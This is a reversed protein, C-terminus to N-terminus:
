GTPVRRLRSRTGVAELDAELLDPPLPSRRAPISFPPPAIRVATPSTPPPQTRPALKVPSVADLSLWDIDFGGREIFLTLRQSGANLRVRGVSVESFIDHSGTVPISLAGTVNLGNAQLHVRSGPTTASVRLRLTYIGADVVNVSYALWENDATWGVQFAGPTGLVQRIDVSDFRAAAGSNGPTSDSYAVSAPGTDYNEAQIRTTKGARLTPTTSPFPSSRGVDTVHYGRGGSGLLLRQPLFPDFELVSGAPRSLGTSFNAWSPSAALANTTVLVGSAYSDDHYPHDDTTVFLRNPDTPDVAAASIHIDSNIRTWGTAPTYRHLGGNNNSRWNAVYIRGPDAPDIAINTFAGSENPGAQAPSGSMSTVYWGNWGLEYIGNKGSIYVYDYVVNNNEIRRSRTPDAVINGFEPDVGAAIEGWWLGGDPSRYLKGGSVVWIQQPDLPDIWIDTPPRPPSGSDIETQSRFAYPFNDFRTWTLGGDLSKAVAFDGEWQQGFVGVTVFNGNADPKSYAVARGGSYTALGSQMRWSFGHDSSTWQKGADMAQFSSHGAVYPNFSYGLPVWGAFGRGRIAGPTAQPPASNMLDTWTAGSNTSRFLMDSTLVYVTGSTDVELWTASPGAPQNTPWNATTNTLVPQWTAGGDGTRWVGAAGNQYHENGVYLVNGNGPHVALAKFSSSPDLGNAATPLALSGSGSGPLFSTGGNTSKYVGQGNGLAVWLVASNTPHTVVFQVDANAPLGTTLQVPAGPLNDNFRFLGRGDVAIYITNRDAAYTASMINYKGGPYDGGNDAPNPDLDFLLSWNNGADLSRYIKGLNEGNRIGDLQRHNGAFAFMRNPNDPDFLIREIPQSYSGGSQPPMGNRKQNWTRGGDLSAYPGNMSGIWVENRRAPSPHFTVAGMEWNLLGEAPTSWDTGADFSVGVGLIDGGMVLHRSNHPNVAISTSWGGNGPEHLPQWAAMLRRPELPEAIPFSRQPKPKM